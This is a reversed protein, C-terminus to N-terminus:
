LSRKLIWTDKEGDEGGYNYCLRIVDQTSSARAYYYGVYQVFGYLDFIASVADKIVTKGYYDRDFRGESQITKGTDHETGDPYVEFVRYTHLYTHM